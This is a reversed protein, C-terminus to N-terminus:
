KTQFLPSQVLELILTRVGYDRSRSRDLIQEVAARDGFRIPAGTAYVALQRVLNRAIAREDSLLLAKFERIDQFRRGDPVEGSADVRPGRHFEFPHGGKGIGPEPTGPGQARYQDRWGGLVDFSELAFGPPDMREHCVACSAQQRHKELQERITTAGRTDPEVAGVGPPPPPLPRGLIREMVWAGRLVPSTTTGNATVKLVSAQTLLGGRPSEAPLSVRRLAVGEVPPLGYHRALRENIMVFDSAVLQRAPLDDRILESVFARTEELASETLLDDLYYDPYLTADPATAEMRRLDLWYDLFAEVFRRAKPDGLLRETEARLGEPDRLRGATADERLAADPISNWLFLSLRTALALGDLPGPSEEVCVFGPSCLVATYGAIMADNFSSGAALAREIVPLFRPVETAANTNRYAAALFQGLLREADRRPEPSVVEVSQGGPRAPKMPLDGFLLRHAAPPWEELLPGEVELWRFVVGPQGDKEALPNQMRGKGPRSRFLRAPDVRVTEGALLWATLEHAEPEPTLDFAGLRRLQRPPAESYVTIPESRRGPSLVDLDPIFWKNSRVAHVWVTHGVFRLRYRGPAPARFADFKPELPEYSGAVVGMGERDRIAPDHTGVTIPQAGSRVGPQGEFGLVPFTAREPYTNFESFKMPGVYSRQDRAHFRVPRPAPRDPQRAIVQRLAAEAAGLYRAMQVHSVDLADGVKNFRQITGDEPLADRIQLWPAQLLDRLAQEYEYRNLRRYTSRGEAAVAAQDARALVNSLSTAFAALDAAPPRPQKRPPMEDLLVRDLAQVWRDRNGPSEPHFELATLDLGGKPADADHCDACHATLFERVGPPTREADALTGAAFIALWGGFWGVGRTM